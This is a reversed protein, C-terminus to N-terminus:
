QSRQLMANYKVYGRAQRLWQRSMFLIPKKSLLNKCLFKRGLPARSCKVQFGTSRSELGESWSMIINITSTTATTMITVTTQHQQWQQKRWPQQQKQLATYYEACVIDIILDESGSALMEGDHSFSLTRVPWSFVSWVHYMMCSLSQFLAVKFSNTPKYLFGLTLQSCDLIESKPHLFFFLYLLDFSWKM